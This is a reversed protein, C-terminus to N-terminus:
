TLIQSTIVDNLQEVIITPIHYFFALFPLNYTFHFTDLAAPSVIMRRCQNRTNYAYKPLRFRYNCFVYNFQM